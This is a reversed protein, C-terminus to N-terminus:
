LARDHARRAIGLHGMSALRVDGGRQAVSPSELVATHDAEDIETARGQHHGSPQHSSALLEPANEGLAVVVGDGREVIGIEGVLLAM